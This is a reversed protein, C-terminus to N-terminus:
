ARPRRLVGRALEHFAADVEAPTAVAPHDQWWQVSGVLAGALMRALLPVALKAPV